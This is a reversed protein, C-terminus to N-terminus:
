KVKKELDNVKQHTDVKAFSKRLHSFYERLIVAGYNRKKPDTSLLFSPIVWKM